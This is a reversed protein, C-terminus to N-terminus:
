VHKPTLGRFGDFDGRDARDLEENTPIPLPGHPSAATRRGGEDSPMFPREVIIDSGSGSPQSPVFEVNLTLGELVNVSTVQGKAMGEAQACQMGQGMLFRTVDDVDEVEATMNVILTVNIRQM